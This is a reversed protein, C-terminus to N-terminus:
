EVHVSLSRTSAVRVYASEVGAMDIPVIRVRRVVLSASDDPELAELQARSIHFQGDDRAACSLSSGGSFIELEIRDSSAEAQWSLELGNAKSLRAGDELGVGFVALGQVESPTAGTVEFKGLGGEGSASLAFEETGGSPGPLEASGAYFWGAATTALAPFLRPAFSHQSNGLKVQIPGVSLLDVQATASLAGEDLGSTAGCTELERAEAGLLKLLGDGDIGRFRAVKASAALHSPENAGDGTREM